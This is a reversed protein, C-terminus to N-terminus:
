TKVMKKTKSKNIIIRQINIAYTKLGLKIKEIHGNAEINFMIYKIFDKHPLWETHVLEAGNITLLKDIANLIYM